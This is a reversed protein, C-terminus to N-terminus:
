PGWAPEYSGAVALQGTCDGHAVTATGSIAGNWDLYLDYVVTVVAGSWVDVVTADLTADRLQEDVYADVIEVPELATVVNDPDVELHLEARADVGCVTGAHAITLLGEVDIPFPECWGVSQWQGISTDCEYIEGGCIGYSPDAPDTVCEDIDCGPNPGDCDTEPPLCNALCPEPEEEVPCGPLVLCVVALVARRMGQGM